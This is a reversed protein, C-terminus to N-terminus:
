RGPWAAAPGAPSRPRDPQRVPGPRLPQGASASLRQTMLRDLASAAVAPCYLVASRSDGTRVLLGTSQRILRGILGLAEDEGVSASVRACSFLQPTTVYMAAVADFPYFGALGVDTRWFELWERAQGAVWASAGGAAAM